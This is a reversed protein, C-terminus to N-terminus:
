LKALEITEVTKSLKSIKYTSTVKTMINTVEFTTGLIRDNDESDLRYTRVVNGTLKEAFLIEGNDEKIVVSYAAQNSNDNIALRFMPQQNAKGAYQLEVFRNNNKEDNGAVALNNFLLTFAGLLVVTATRFSLNLTKM